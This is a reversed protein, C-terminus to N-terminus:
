GGFERIVELSDERNLKLRRPVLRNPWHERIYIPEEPVSYNCWYPSCRSGPLISGYGSRVVLPDHTWTALSVSVGLLLAFGIGVAYDLGIRCTNPM